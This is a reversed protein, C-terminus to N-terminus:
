EVEVPAPKGSTVPTPAVPPTAEKIVEGPKPTLKAEQLSLSDLIKEYIKDLLAPNELYYDYSHRFSSDTLSYKKLIDKQVNKFVMRSTDYQTITRGIRAEALHIDLLVSTMKDESVLDAPAETKPACALMVLSLLFLYLRKKVRNDTLNPLNLVSCL